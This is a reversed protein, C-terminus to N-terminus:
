GLQSINKVSNFGGVLQERKKTESDPKPLLLLWSITPQM